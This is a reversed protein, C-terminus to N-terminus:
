RGAAWKELLADLALELLEGYAFRHEDAVDVWRAWVEHTVKINIQVNRGTFRYRAPLHAPMKSRGPFGASAHMAELLSTRRSPSRSKEFQALNMDGATPDARGSSPDIPANTM